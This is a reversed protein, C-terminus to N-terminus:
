PTVGEAVPITFCFRAGREPNSAASLRGGLSEIISRSINLGMGLGEPKTTFFPEFLRALNEPLIGSGTDIVCVQVSRGEDRLATQVKLENPLSTIEDM